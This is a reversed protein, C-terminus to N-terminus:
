RLRSSDSKGAELWDYDVLGAPEFIKENWFHDLRDSDSVSEWVALGVASFFFAVFIQLLFILLGRFVSCHYVASIFFSLFVLGVGVGALVTKFGGGLRAAFILYFVVFTTGILWGGGFGIVARLPHIKQALFIGSIWFSLLLIVSPVTLVLRLLHVKEPRWYQDDPYSQLFLPSLLLRQRDRLSLDLPDITTTAEDSPSRFELKRTEFDFEVPTGPIKEGSGLRWADAKAPLLLLLFLASLLRM